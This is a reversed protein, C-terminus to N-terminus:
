ILSSTSISEYTSQSTSASIFMCMYIETNFYMNINLTQSTPPYTSTSPSAIMSNYTNVTSPITFSHLSSSIFNHRPSSIFIHPYSSKCSPISTSIYFHLDSSIYFHLSTSTCKYHKKDATPVCKPATYIGCFFTHLGLPIDEGFM